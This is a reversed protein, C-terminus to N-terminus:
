LSIGLKRAREVLDKWERDVQEDVEEMARVITQATRDAIRVRRSMM